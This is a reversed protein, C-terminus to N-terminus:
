EGTFWFGGARHLADSGPWPPTMGRNPGTAFDLVSSVFHQLDRALREGGGDGPGQGQGSPRDGGLVQHDGRRQRLDVEPNALV